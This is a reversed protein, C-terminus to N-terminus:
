KPVLMGESGEPAEPRERDSLMGRWRQLARKPKHDHEALNRGDNPIYPDTEPAHEANEQLEGCACCCSKSLECGGQDFRPLAFRPYTWISWAM